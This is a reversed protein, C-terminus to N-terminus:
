MSDRKYKPITKMSKIETIAKDLEALMKDKDKPIIGTVPVMTSVHNSSFFTNLTLGALLARTEELRELESVEKFQGSKYAKGLETNPFITLSASGMMYPHIQNYFNISTKANELCKGAGALGTIYSVSYLIGAEELKHCQEVAEQVNHGKKIWTLISDSGTETGLYLNTYGLFKLEKLEDLSKRKIDNITTFASICKVTPIYEHIWLAIQKLERFGIAFADGSLLFVRQNGIAGTKEFGYAFVPHVYLPRRTNRYLKGAEIIDNKIQEMPAIRFCTEKYASCFTCKNHSCGVTAEILISDAENPPRYIPETYHM